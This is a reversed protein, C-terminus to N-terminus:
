SKNFTSIVILVLGILTIFISEEVLVVARDFFFHNILYCLGFIFFVIGAPRIFDSKLNKM